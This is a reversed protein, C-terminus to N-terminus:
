GFVKKIAELYKYGNITDPELYSGETWENWSNIVILKPANKCDNKKVWEKTQRLYKEFLEPTANLSVGTKVGKPFRSNNDWGITVNPCYPIQYIAQLVDFRKICEEGWTKYDNDEYFPYKGKMPVLGRWNYSTVSDVGFYEFYQKRTPKPNGPIAQPESSWGHSFQLHIGKFGEKKASEEDEYNLICWKEETQNNAINKKAEVYAEMTHHRDLHDPTFNLIASVKPAFTFITELQFSSMEAVAITKETMLDAAVTYPNGINRNFVLKGEQQIYLWLKFDFIPFIFIKLGLTLHQPFNPM